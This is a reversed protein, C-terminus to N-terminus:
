WRFYSLFHRSTINLHPRWRWLPPLAFTKSMRLLYDDVPLPPGVTLRANTKVRRVANLMVHSLCQPFM